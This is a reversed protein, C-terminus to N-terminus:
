SYYCTQQISYGYSRASPLPIGVLAWHQGPLSLQPQLFSAMTFATFCTHLSLSELSSSTCTYIASFVVLTSLGAAPMRFDMIQQPQEAWFLGKVHLCSKWKKWKGWPMVFYKFVIFVLYKLFGKLIIVLYKQALHCAVREASQVCVHKAPHVMGTTKGAFCATPSYNIQNWPWRRCSHFTSHQGSVRTHPLGHLSEMCIIDLDVM